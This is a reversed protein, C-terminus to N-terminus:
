DCEPSKNLFVRSGRDYETEYQKRMKRLRPCAVKGILFNYLKAIKMANMSASGRGDNTKEARAYEFFLNEYFSTIQKQMKAPFLEYNEDVARKVWYQNDWYNSPELQRDVYNQVAQHNGMLLLFTVAQKVYKKSNGALLKISKAEIQRIYRQDLTAGAEDSMRVRELFYATAVEEFTKGWKDVLTADLTEVETETALMLFLQIYKPIYRKIGGRRSKLFEGAKEKALARWKPYRPEIERIRDLTFYANALKKQPWRRFVAITAEENLSQQIFYKMFASDSPVRVRGYIVDQLLTAENPLSTLNLKGLPQKEYKKGYPSRYYRNNIKQLVVRVNGEYAAAIYEGQPSAKLTVRDEYKELDEKAKASISKLHYKKGQIEVEVVVRYASSTKSVDFLDRSNRRYRNTKKLAARIM